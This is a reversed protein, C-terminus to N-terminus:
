KTFKSAKTVKSRGGPTTVRVSVTGSVGPAIAIIETGSVVTFSRAAGSGFSVSSTWLLGTGKIVVKTGRTGKKPSLSTITPVPEAGLYRSLGIGIPSGLGSAMDYGVTAPYLGGGTTTYDDNGVRIDNVIPKHEAALKYLAPNLFGLRHLQGQQVDLLGTVAAWLPAAASTGGVGEWKGQEFVIYGHTPDASASVDPVERCDGTKLGCPVGSSHSNHTGPGAQYKPMGWDISIGGGGAGEPFLAGPNLHQDWISETPKPGLGTLDTGGVGTVFPQTGPDWPDLLLPSVIFAGDAFDAIDAFDINPDSAVAVPESGSSLMSTIKNTALSVVAVAATGAAGKGACAVLLATGSPSIALGFPDTLAPSLNITALLNGNTGDLVSVTNADTNSVYVRKTVPNVTLKTPFLGVPAVPSTSASCGAVSAADCTAGSFEAVGDALPITFYIQNTASDVAIGAPDQGSDFGNDAGVITLSTESIVAIQGFGSASVYVTHTTPDVAVGKPSSGSLLDLLKANPCSPHALAANCKAGSIEALENDGNLTVFVNHTVPDVAVDFPDSSAGFSYTAVPELSIENMVSVTGNSSNTLYATNDSPDVAVDSTGAGKKIITGDPSFDNPLCGESGEDGPISIMSQGQAAAQEFVTNEAAAAQGGLFAECVGWSSSMVQAKDQDAIATYEDITGTGGNAAEYVLLHAKPALGLVVEIDLEAEGAGANSNTGGKVAINKIPTKTRYCAQFGAIDSASYTTLEFLAITVGNGLDGRQYLGNLSYAKALQNETWSGQQRAASAAAACAIPGGSTAKATVHLPSPHAPAPVPGGPQPLVLTDLGIVAQVAGAVSPPLKPAGVNAIAIRGTPMRYRDLATHLGREAVAVTSTVPIVLHNSSVAGTRFGESRLLALVKDITAQTPGFVSAFRGRPLFHRYEATGPTSVATAFRTLAAPDRPRLVVDLRLASSAPAPGLRRAGFPVVAPAGVSLDAVSLVIRPAAGGTSAVGGVQSLGAVLTAVAVGALAPRGWRFGSQRRGRLPSM